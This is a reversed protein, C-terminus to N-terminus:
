FSTLTITSPGVSPMAQALGEAGHEAVYKVAEGWGQKFLDGAFGTIDLKVAAPRLFRRGVVIGAAFAASIAVGGIPVKKNDKVFQKINTFKM